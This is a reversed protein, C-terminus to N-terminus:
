KQCERLRRLKERAVRVANEFRRQEKTKFSENVENDFELFIQEVVPKSQPIDYKKAFEMLMIRLIESNVEEDWAPLQNNIAYQAIKTVLLKYHEAYQKQIDPSLSEAKHKRSLLQQIEIPLV